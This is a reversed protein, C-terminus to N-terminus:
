TTSRALATGIVALNGAIAGWGVWKDFNAEGHDRCRDLEHKRKLVSIRGEVGAHFRRGRKFWPQAEHLRRTESKRGPQPLVPQKVGQHQAYAENEPSYLARDGSAQHPPKGFQQRHHDLAPQWQEADDPNGELVQWRTVLGGDVEDLWVKHGFETDKGAKQRRIIDTHPEFLSVIKQTAPVM